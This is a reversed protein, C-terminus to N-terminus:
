NWYMEQILALNKDIVANLSQRQTAKTYTASDELAIEPTGITQLFHCNFEVTEITVQKFAM